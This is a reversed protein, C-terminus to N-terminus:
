AAIDTDEVTGGLIDAIAMEGTELATIYGSMLNLVSRCRDIGDENEILNTALVNTLHRAQQGPGWDSFAIEKAKLVMAKAANEVPEARKDIELKELAKINAKAAKCIAKVLEDKGESGYLSGACDSLATAADEHQVQEDWNRVHSAALAYATDAFEPAIEFTEMHRAEVFNTLTELYLQPLEINEAEATAVATHYIASGLDRRAADVHARISSATSFNTPVSNLVSADEAIAAFVCQRAPWDKHAAPGTLEGDDRLKQCWLGFTVKDDLTERAAAINQAIKIHADRSKTEVGATANVAKLTKDILAKGTKQVQEDVEDWTGPVPPKNDGAKPWPDAALLADAINFETPEHGYMQIVSRVAAKLTSKLASVHGDLAAEFKYKKSDKYRSPTVIIKEAGDISDIELPRGEYQKEM